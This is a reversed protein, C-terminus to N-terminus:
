FVRHQEAGALEIGSIDAASVLRAVFQATATRRSREGLYAAIREAVADLPMTKGVMRRHLCILHFGYPTEVPQATTEGEAMAQLAAAFKPTVESATVQGLHGGERASPCDSFLKAAGEFNGPVGALDAAIAEAKARAAAFASPDDSRAAILIHSVEFLDPSRFRGRNAAYYRAIEDDIPSPPDIESEVLQRIMAEDDTERRGKADSAPLPALNRRRSEQLMLERVVLAEAARRMSEGPSGSPHHQAERAIAGRDITVGNVTVPPRPTCQAVNLTVNM